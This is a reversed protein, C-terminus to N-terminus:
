VSIQWEFLLIKKQRPYLFRYFFSFLVEDISKATQLRNLMIHWNPELVQSCPASFYSFAPGTSTEQGGCFIFFDIYFCM